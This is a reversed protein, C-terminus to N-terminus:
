LILILRNVWSITSGTAQKNPSCFKFLTTNSKKEQYIRELKLNTTNAPIFNQLAYTDLFLAILNYSIKSNLYVLNVWTVKLIDCAVPEGRNPLGIPQRWRSNHYIKMM